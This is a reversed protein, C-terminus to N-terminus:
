KVYEDWGGYTETVNGRPLALAAVALGAVTCVLDF